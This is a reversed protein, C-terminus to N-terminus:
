SVYFPKDFPKNEFYQSLVSCVLKEQLFHTHGNPGTHGVYTKKLTPKSALAKQLKRKM